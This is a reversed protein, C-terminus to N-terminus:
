VDNKRPAITQVNAMAFEIQARIGEVFERLANHAALEQVTASRGLRAMRVTSTWHDFLERARPDATPGAFVLYKQAFVLGKEHMEARQKAANPFLEDLWDGGKEEAM